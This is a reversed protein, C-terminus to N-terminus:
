QEIYTYDISQTVGYVLSYLRAYVTAGKAPLSAVTTSKTTLWGSVYLSSSGPGSLGLWLQYETAGQGATWTFSVKSAGLTSGATPSIMTASSGPPAAIYIYDNYTLVSNFYTHLRVYITEGNTPLGSVTASNATSEATATLNHSGAGTSGFWMSYGTASTSAKWTFTASPGTFVAGPVPSTLTALTAATYTYDIYLQVTGFYTTLRVYVTQGNTPLGGAPM